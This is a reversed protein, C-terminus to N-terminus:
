APFVTNPLGIEAHLRCNCKRIGLGAPLTKKWHGHNPNNDNFQWNVQSHTFIFMTGLASDFLVAPMLTIKTYLGAMFPCIANPLHVM